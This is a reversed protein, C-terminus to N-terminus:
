PAFAIDAPNLAVTIETWGDEHASDDLRIRFIRAVEVVSADLGLHLIPGVETVTAVINESRLIAGRQHPYRGAVRHVCLERSPM